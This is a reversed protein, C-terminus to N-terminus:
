GVANAASSTANKGAAELAKLKLPYPDVEFQRALEAAVRYALGVNGQNTASTGSMGLLVYRVDAPDVGERALNFFRHSLKRVADPKKAKTIEKGYLQSIRGSAATLARGAPAADRRPGDIQPHEARNLSDALSARQEAPQQQKDSRNPSGDKASPINDGSLEAAPSREPIEESSADRLGDASNSADDVNVDSAPLDGPGQDAVSRGKARAPPVVKQVAMSISQRDDKFRERAVYVVVALVAAAAAVGIWLAPERRSRKARSHRSPTVVASPSIVIPDSTAMGRGQGAPAAAIPPPAHPVARPVANGAALLVPSSIPAAVGRGQGAGDAATASEAQNDRLQRDYDAKKKEDLLALRAAALENLLKQSVASHPGAQFTRIHAMQRDAANAITDSDDEFLGIGLLRYHNPPQEATPIGLWKRYPDFVEAM